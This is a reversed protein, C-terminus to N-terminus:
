VTRDFWNPWCARLRAWLVLVIEQVEVEARPPQDVVLVRGLGKKWGGARLVAPSFAVPLSPFDEDVVSRVRRECVWAAVKSM